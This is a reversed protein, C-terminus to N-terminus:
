DTAHTAELSEVEDDSLIPSCKYVAPKAPEVIECVANRPIDARIVLAGSEYRVKLEGNESAPWTKTIPRQMARVTALFGQKSDESYYSFMVYPRDVKVDPNRDLGDALKRLETAVEHALPM